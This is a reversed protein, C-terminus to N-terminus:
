AQTNVDSGMGKQGKLETQLVERVLKMSEGSRKALLAASPLKDKRTQYHCYRWYLLHGYIYELKAAQLREDGQTECLADLHSRIDDLLIQIAEKDELGFGTLSTLVLYVAQTVHIITMNISVQFSQTSFQEILLENNVTHLRTEPEGPKGNFGKKLNSFGEPAFLLYYDRESEGKEILVNIEDVTKRLAVVIEYWWWQLHTIAKEPGLGSSILELALTTMICDLPRYRTKRGHRQEVTYPFRRRHLDKIRSLFTSRKHDAIDFYRALGADLQGIDFTVENM